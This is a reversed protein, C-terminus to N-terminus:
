MGGGGMGGSMNRASACYNVLCEPSDTTPVSRLELQASGGEGGACYSANAVVFDDFTPNNIFVFRNAIILSHLDACAYTRSDIGAAFASFSVVIAGLILAFRKISMGQILM